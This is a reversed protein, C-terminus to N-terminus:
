FNSTSNLHQIDLLLSLWNFNKLSESAVFLRRIQLANRCDLPYWKKKSRSRKSAVRLSDMWFSIIRIFGLRRHGLNADAKNSTNQAAIKLMRKYCEVKWM